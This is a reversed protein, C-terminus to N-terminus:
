AQEVIIPGNSKNPTLESREKALESRDTELGSPPQNTHPVTLLLRPPTLCVM